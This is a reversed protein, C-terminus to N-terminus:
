PALANLRPHGLADQFGYREFLAIIESTSKRALINLPDLPVDILSSPIACDDSYSRAESLSCSIRRVLKEIADDSLDPFFRMSITDDSM